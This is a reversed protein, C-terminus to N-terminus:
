DLIGVPRIPSGTGDRIKLPFAALTYRKGAVQDLNAMNEMNLVEYEACMDHAPFQGTERASAHDISPSDIGINEVGQEALWYAAEESLGTYEHLYAHRKQPDDVGYHAQRHGTHITIADSEAISLGADHLASRIDETEIFEEGPVESLDIGVADAYFRELPLRDISGDSTPDVHTLSDIHTPGHESVVLTRVLPQEETAGQAKRQLKRRTTDTEGGLRQEVTYGSEEHTGTVFLQTRTNGPFVPQEAEVYGSLDVLEVV